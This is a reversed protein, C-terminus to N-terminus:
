LSADGPSEALVELCIMWFDLFKYFSWADGSPRSHAALRNRELFGFNHLRAHAAQRSHAVRWTTEPFKGSNCLNCDSGFVHM